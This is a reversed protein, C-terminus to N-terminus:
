STARHSRSPSNHQIVMWYSGRSISTIRYALTSKSQQWHKVFMKTNVLTIGPYGVFSSGPDLGFHIMAMSAMKVWHGDIVGLDKYGYHPERLSTFNVHLWCCTKPVIIVLDKNVMCLNFLDQNSFTFMSEKIVNYLFMEEVRYWKDLSPRMRTRGLSSIDDPNKGKKKIVISNSYVLRSYRINILSIIRRRRAWTSLLSSVGQPQFLHHKLKLAMCSLALNNHHM